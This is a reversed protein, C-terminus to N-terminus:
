IFGLANEPFFESCLMAKYFLPQTSDYREANEKFQGGFIMVEQGMKISAHFWRGNKLDPLRRWQDNKYEAVMNSVEVPDGGFTYVADTTHITSYFRIRSLIYIYFGTFLFGQNCM